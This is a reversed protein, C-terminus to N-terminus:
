TPFGALRPAGSCRLRGVLLPVSRMPGQAEVAAAGFDFEAREGPGFALPVATSWNAV